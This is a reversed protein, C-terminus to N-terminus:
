QLGQMVRALDAPDIGDSDAEGMIAALPDTKAPNRALSSALEAAAATVALIRKDKEARPMRDDTEIGEIMRQRENEFFTFANTSRGMGSGGGAAAARGRALMQRQYDEKSKLSRLAIQNQFNRQAAEQAVAYERLQAQRLRDQEARMASDDAKNEKIRQDYEQVGQLGADGVAGFFNPNNSAMLALAVRLMADDQAKAKQEDTSEYPSPKDPPPPLVGPPPATLGAASNSSPLPSATAAVGGTQRGVAVAAAAPAAAASPSIVEAGAAPAAGLILDRPVAADRAATPAVIPAAPADGEVLAKREAVPNFPAPAPLLPPPAPRDAPQLPLGEMPSPARPGPLEGPFQDLAPVGRRVADSIADGYPKIGQMADSLLKGGLGQNRTLWDQVSRAMGSVDPAGDNSATPATLFESEPLIAAAAARPDARQRAADVPDGGSLAWLARRADDLLGAM